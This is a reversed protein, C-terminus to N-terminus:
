HYQYDRIRESNMKGHIEDFDEMDEKKKKMVM